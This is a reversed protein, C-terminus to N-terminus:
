MALVYLRIVCALGLAWVVSRLTARDAVYCYIYAVRLALFLWGTLAVTEAAAGSHLALAVGAAFFPFAELSNQQAANARARRGEQRALWARPDRNDYGKAGWKAIGACFIPLLGALLVTLIAQNM